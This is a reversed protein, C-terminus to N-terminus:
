PIIINKRPKKVIVPCSLNKPFPAQSESRRLSDKPRINCIVRNFDSKAAGTSLYEPQMRSNIPFGPKKETKLSHLHKILIHIHLAPENHKVSLRIARICHKISNPSALNELNWKSLISSKLNRYYSLSIEAQKDFFLTQNLGIGSLANNLAKNRAKARKERRLAASESKRRIDSSTPLSLLFNKSEEKSRFVPVSFSSDLLSEEHNEENDYEDTIIHSNLSELWDM